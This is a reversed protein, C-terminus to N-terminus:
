PAAALAPGGVEIRGLKMRIPEVTVPVPLRKLALTPDFHRVIWNALVDPVPLPGV